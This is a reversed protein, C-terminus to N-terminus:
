TAQKAAAVLRATQAVARQMAQNEHVQATIDTAYKVVKFPKGNLDPDPQLRRSGSRAGARASGGTNAPM